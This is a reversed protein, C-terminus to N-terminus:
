GWGQSVYRQGQNGLILCNVGPLSAAFRVAEAPPILALATALADAQMATPATVTVSAIAPSQGTRHNILHHHRRSRDYFSQYGGSTAIGGGALAVTEIVGGTRAPNEVGVTWSRNREPAGSVRMDGGANVMHNEVGRASLVRSAADAIYGKAIGDLTLAMGSRELRINGGSVAVGGPAALALAERLAAEDVQLAGATTKASRFLDVVPTIAPNFAYDTRLGFADAEGLLASLEAPAHTLIGHANLSGLATGPDFRDFVAILRDMEAFAASVADECQAPSAGKGAASPVATITVLTGMLLRTEQVTRLGPALPAAWLSAPFLSSAAGCAALAAGTLCSRRLFERRSLTGSKRAPSIASSPTRM